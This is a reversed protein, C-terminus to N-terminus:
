KVRVLVFQLPIGLTQEALKRYDEYHDVSYLETTEVKYHMLEGTVPNRFYVLNEM